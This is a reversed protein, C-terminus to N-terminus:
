GSLLTAAGKRVGKSGGSRHECKRLADRPVGEDAGTGNQVNESQGYIEFPPLLSYPDQIVGSEDFQLLGEAKLLDKIRESGASSLVAPLTVKISTRAGMVPHFYCKLAVKNL